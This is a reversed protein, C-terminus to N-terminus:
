RGTPTPVSIRAPAVSRRQMTKRLAGHRVASIFVLIYARFRWLADVAEATPRNRGGSHVRIRAISCRFLMHTPPVAGDVRIRAPARYLMGRPQPYTHVHCSMRRSIAEASVGQGASAGLRLRPEPRPLPCVAEFIGRLPRRQREQPFLTTCPRRSDYLGCMAAVRALGAPRLACVREPKGDPKPTKDSEPLLSIRRRSRRSFARIGSKFFLAESRHAAGGFDESSEFIIGNGAGFTLACRM